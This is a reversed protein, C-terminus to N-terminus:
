YMTRHRLSVSGNDKWRKMNFVCIRSGRRTVSLKSGQERWSKIAKKTDSFAQRQWSQTRRCVPKSLGYLSTAAWWTSSLIIGARVRTTPESSIEWTRFKQSSHLNRGELSCGGAGVVSSYSGTVYTSDFYDILGATGKPAAEKTYAHGSYGQKIGCKNNKIVEMNLIFISTLLLQCKSLINVLWFPM